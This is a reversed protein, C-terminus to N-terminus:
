PERLLAVETMAKVKAQSIGDMSLRREIGKTQHPQLQPRFVQILAAEMIEVVEYRNLYVGDTRVMNSVAESALFSVLIPPPINLKALAPYIHKGASATEQFERRLRTGFSMNPSNTKGVYMIQGNHHILYVGRQKAANGLCAEKWKAGRFAIPVVCSSALLAERSPIEIEIRMTLEHAREPAAPRSV